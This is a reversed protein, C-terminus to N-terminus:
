STLRSFIGVAKRAPAGARERTIQGVAWRIGTVGGLVLRKGRLNRSWAAPFSGRTTMAADVTAMTAIAATIMTAKITSMYM